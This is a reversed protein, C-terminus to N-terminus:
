NYNPFSVFRYDNKRYNLLKKLKKYKYLNFFKKKLKPPTFISENEYKEKVFELFSFFERGFFNNSLDETSINNIYIIADCVEQNLNAPCGKFFECSPGFYFPDCRCHGNKM